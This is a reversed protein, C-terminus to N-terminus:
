NIIEFLLTVADLAFVIESILYKKRKKSKM